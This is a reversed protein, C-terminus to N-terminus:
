AGKARFILSVGSVSQDKITYSASPSAMSLVLDYEDFLEFIEAINMFTVPYLIERDPKNPPMPGIGNESLTSIQVGVITDKSWNPLRALLIYKPRPAALAKLVDKPNPVYQISGSAHVLDVVGLATTADDITTFVRFYNQGIIKAKEAMKPTEVIAWKLPTKTASVVRVYHFGCGGGFDLVNLQRNRVEASAIGVAVISNLAQEPAVVNPEFRMGTKFAIVEAIEVDNYGGGCSALASAYNSYLDVVKAM